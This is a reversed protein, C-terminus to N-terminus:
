PPGALAPPLLRDQPEQTGSRVSPGPEPVDGLVAESEDPATGEDCPGTRVVSRPYVLADPLAEVRHPFFPLHFLRWGLHVADRDAPQGPQLTVGVRDGVTAKGLPLALEPLGAARRSLNRVQGVTM